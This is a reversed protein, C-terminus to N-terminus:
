ALLLFLCRRWVDWYTPRLIEVWSSGGSDCVIKLGKEQALSQLANYDAGRGNVDVPVIARTRPGLDSTPDKDVDIPFRRSNWMSLNFEAGIKRAANATAVFTLDPM